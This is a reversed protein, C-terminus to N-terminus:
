QGTYSDDILFPIVGDRWLRKSYATAARKLRSRRLEDASVAIDGQVIGDISFLFTIFDHYLLHTNIRLRTTDNFAPAIM